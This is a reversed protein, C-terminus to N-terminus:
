HLVPWVPSRRAKCWRKARPVISQAHGASLKAAFEATLSRERGSALHWLHLPRQVHNRSVKTQQASVVTLSRAPRAPWEKGDADIFKRGAKRSLEIEEEVAELMSEEAMDIFKNGLWDKIKTYTEEKMTPINQWANIKRLDEYGNGTAMCGGVARINSEYFWASDTPVKGPNLEFNSVITKDCKACRLVIAM